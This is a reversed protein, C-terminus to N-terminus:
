VLQGGQGGLTASFVSVTLIHRKPAWIAGSYGMNSLHALKFSLLLNKEGLYFDM